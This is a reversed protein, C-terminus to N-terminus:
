SARVCQKKAPRLIERVGMPNPMDLMRAHINLVVGVATRTRTQQRHTCEATIHIFNHQQSHQYATGYIAIETRIQRNACAIEPKCWTSYGLETNLRARTNRPPQLCNCWDGHRTSYLVSLIDVGNNASLAGMTCACCSNRKCVEFVCVACMCQRVCALRVRGHLCVVRRRSKLKSVNLINAPTHIYSAASASQAM